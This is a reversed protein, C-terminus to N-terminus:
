TSAQVPVPRDALKRIARRAPGEIYTFTLHSYALLLAIYAALMLLPNSGILLAKVVLLVTLHNLYVSYSVDGLWSLKGFLRSLTGQEAAFVPIMLTFLIPAVFDTQSFKEPRIFLVALTLTVIVLEALSMLSRRGDLYPRAALYLKYSLIGLAFGAVGRILGTNFAGAINQYTVDLHPTAAFLVALSLLALAILRSTKLVVPLMAFFAINLWFEVSISWSAYNYTLGSPNLGVNNTLTLNQLLVFLTGDPYSPIGGYAVIYAAVFTCLTFVHLPYLRAIRQIVFSSMRTRTEAFFYVHSIIFGSLVFFLDVFLYGAWQPAFHFLAVALAAVGRIGDLAVFRQNM